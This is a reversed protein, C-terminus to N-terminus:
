VQGNFCKYEDNKCLYINEIKDKNTLYEITQLLETKWDYKNYLVDEQLIRIVSYGNENACTQKYIDNEIQEDPTKWKYVQKFHQIGDLEIIINLDDLCFDFPLHKKKKCWDTKFQYIVNFNDDLFDKLIKETKNICFPCWKGSSINNLTAEFEHNYECNFIFKTNCKKFKNRPKLENKNSWFIAKDSSAFSKNFCDICNDDDCIKQNGCFPCWQNYGTINHLIGQFDHNCKDCKFWFKQQSNIPIERPSKINKEKNWYISREQSAFSKMFCIDCEFDECLSKSHCYPCGNKTSYMRALPSTFEHFCTDCNFLYKKDSCKFLERPNQINKNSWCKIRQCSAFSNNFCLKCENDTCLRRCACYTCWYGQSVNSVTAVFFHSCKDCKFRCKESSFKFIERAKLYNDDTLYKSKEYSAFSKNFCVECNDDKCLNRSKVCISM